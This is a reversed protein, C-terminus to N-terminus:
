NIKKKKILESQDKLLYSGKISQIDLNHRKKAKYILRALRDMDEKTDPIKGWVIEYLEGKPLPGKSNYLTMLLKDVLGADNSIVPALKTASQTKLHKRLCLSFLGQPGKFEFNPAYTTPALERLRDWYLSAQDNDGTELFHIVQLQFWLVPANCFNEKYAYIPTNNMLNDLMKKMFNFNESLHFKRFQKSRDLTVKASDLDNMKVYFVFEAVLQAIQDSEVLHEKMKSIKAIWIQAAENDETINAFIFECRALRAELMPSDIKIERMKVLISEMKAVNILNYSLIFHNFSAIFVYYDLHLEKFIKLAIVLEEESKIFESLNNYALGLLLHRQANVFPLDSLAAQNLDTIIQRCQNNRLLKYGNVIKRELSSLRKDQLWKEFLHPRFNMERLILDFTKCKM